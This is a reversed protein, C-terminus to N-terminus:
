IMGIVRRTPRASPSKVTLASFHHEPKVPKKKNRGQQHQRRRVPTPHPPAAAVSRMKPVSEAPM